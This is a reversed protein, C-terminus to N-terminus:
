TSGFATSARACALLAHRRLDGARVAPNRWNLDPQQALFAHYYYQGTAADYEWASGGFESLWNNPPAATRRGSRALHVLRAEPQRALQPERRVLSAPRLHPQARSRPHDQLGSAHAADALADFDAMRASCRISAPITPSTTASIPWRRRSLDAVALDRRHRADASLAAPRHHGQHRRGRRRRFGPVLASLDSLVRRAAVLNRRETEDRPDSRM